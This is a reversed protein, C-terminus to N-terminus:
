HFCNKPKFLNEQLFTYFLQTLIKIAVFEERNKDKYLVCIPRALQPIFHFLSIHFHTGVM